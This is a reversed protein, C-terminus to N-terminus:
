WSESEKILEEHSTFFGADIRAEAAQLERNYEEITLRKPPAEKTKVLGKILTLISQKEEKALLPLFQQIQKDLAASTM